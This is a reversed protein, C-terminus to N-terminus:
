QTAKIEGWLVPTLQQPSVLLPPSWQSPGSNDDDQNDTLQTLKNGIIEFSYINWSDKRAGEAFNETGAFLISKGDTSFSAEKIALQPLQIREVVTAQGDRALTAIVPTSDIVPNKISEIYLIQTGDPSWAGLSMNIAPNPPTVQWLNTGDTRCVYIERGEFLLWQGNPSWKPRRGFGLETVQKVNTGNADMVFLNFFQDAAFSNRTSIFVIQSGDPSWSPEVDVRPHNTLQLEGTGDENMVYINWNGDRHSSFAIRQGNPSWVPGLDVAAHSTLRQQHSGDDNMTYIDWNRDRNSHFAIKGWLPSTVLWLSAMLILTRM